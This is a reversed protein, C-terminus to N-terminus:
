GTLVSWCGDSGSGRLPYPSAYIGGGPLRSLIPIQSQGQEVRGSAECARLRPPNRYCIWIKIKKGKLGRIRFFLKILVLNPSKKLTELCKWWAIYIYIYVTKSSSDSDSTWFILIRCSFRLLEIEFKDINKQKLGIM